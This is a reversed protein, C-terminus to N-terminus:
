ACTVGTWMSSTPAARPSGSRQREPPWPPNLWDPPAAGPPLGEGAGAARQDHRCRGRAPHRRAGRRGDASARPATGRDGGHPRRPLPVRRGDRRGEGGASIRVQDPRLMVEVCDEACSHPAHPLDHCPLVGVETLVCGSEACRGPLPAANGVFRAVFATAPAAHVERPTGVQEIRGARMVAMRDALEFADDRDHTVVIATVHAATLIRRVEARLSARLDPDANSFPEDLLVVENGPALARALACRQQQGGSLEHPYRRTRAGRARLAAAGRRAPRRAAAAPMRRIGFAVNEAVTLHPFLAGEQFVVGVAREEPPLTRAGDAVLRAGITIRGSEPADFGAIMRLTTTKGCGSPGVLALIEGKRVELSVNDVAPPAAPSFRRTVGELRLLM